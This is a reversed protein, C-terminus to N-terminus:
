CDRMNAHPRMSSTVTCSKSRARTATGMKDGVFWRTEPRPACEKGQRAPEAQRRFPVAAIRPTPSSRTWQLPPMGSMVQLADGHIVKVPARLKAAM